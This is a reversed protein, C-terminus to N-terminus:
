FSKGNVRGGKLIIQDAFRIDLVAKDPIKNKLQLDYIIKELEKTIPKNVTTIFLLGAQSKLIIKEATVWDIQYDVFNFTPWYALLNFKSDDQRAIIIPLNNLCEPAYSDASVICAGDTCVKSEQDHIKLLCIPTYASLKIFYNDNKIKICQYNKIFPLEDIKQTILLNINDKIISHSKASLRHDIIFVHSYINIIFLFISYFM